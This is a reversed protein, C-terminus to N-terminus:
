KQEKLFNRYTKAYWDIFKDIKTIPKYKWNIFEDFNM